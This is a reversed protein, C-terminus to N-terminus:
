AEATKPDNLHLTGVDLRKAVVQRRGAPLSRLSDDGRGVRRRKQIARISAYRDVTGAVSGTPAVEDYRV